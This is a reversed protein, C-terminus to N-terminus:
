VVFCNTYCVLSTSVVKKSKFYNVQRNVCDCSTNAKHELYKLAQEIHPQFGYHFPYTCTAVISIDVFYNYFQNLIDMLLSWFAFIGTTIYITPLYPAEFNLSSARVVALRHPCFLVLISFLMSTLFERSIM